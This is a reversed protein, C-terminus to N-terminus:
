GASLSGNVTLFGTRIRTCFRFESGWNAAMSSKATSSPSVTESKKLAVSASWSAILKSAFPRGKPALKVSLPSPDALNSHSTGNPKSVLEVEAGLAILPVLLDGAPSANCINGGISAMNRIQPSAFQDATEALIPCHAGILPDALIDTVTTLTGIVLSGDELRVGRLETVRRINMLTTAYARAGAEAQLMLDTGGALVTVPGAALTEAAAEITDVAIYNAIENM